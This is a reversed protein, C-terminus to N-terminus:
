PHFLLYGLIVGGKTIFVFCTDPSAEHKSKLVELDETGIDSYSSAQIALISNWHSEVIRTFDMSVELEYLM